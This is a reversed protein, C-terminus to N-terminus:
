RGESFNRLRVIVADAGKRWLLADARQAFLFEVGKKPKDGHCYGWDGTRDFWGVDGKTLKIPGYVGVLNVGCLWKVNDM